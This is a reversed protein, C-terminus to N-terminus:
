GNIPDKDVVVQITVWEAGPRGDEVDYEQAEHHTDAINALVKRVRRDSGGPESGGLRDMFTAAGALKSNVLHPTDDDSKASSRDADGQVETKGDRLVKKVCRLGVFCEPRGAQIRGPVFITASGDQSV